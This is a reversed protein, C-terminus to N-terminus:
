TEVMSAVLQRVRMVVTAVVLREVLHEVMLVVWNDVM